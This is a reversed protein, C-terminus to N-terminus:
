INCFDIRDDFKLRKFLEDDINIRKQLDDLDSFPNERKLRINIMENENFGLIILSEPPASNLYIKENAIYIYFFM